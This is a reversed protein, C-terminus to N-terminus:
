AEIEEGGVHFGAPEGPAPALFEVRYPWVQGETFTAPDELWAWVRERAADITFRSEFVHEVFGPPLPHPPAAVRPHPASAANM